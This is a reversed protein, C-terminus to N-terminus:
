AFFIKMDKHRQLDFIHKDLSIDQLEPATEVEVKNKWYALYQLFKEFKNDFGPYDINAEELYKFLVLSRSQPLYGLSADGTEKRFLNGGLAMLSLEKEREPPIQTVVAYIFFGKGDLSKEFSVVLKNNVVVKCKGSPALELKGLEKKKGFEQLLHELKM